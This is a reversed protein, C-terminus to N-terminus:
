EYGYDIISHIIKHGKTIEDPKGTEHEIQIDTREIMGVGKAYLEEQYNMHILSVDDEWLAIACQSFAYGDVVYPIDVDIYKANIPDQTNFANVDWSNGTRIPFILKTYRSNGEITEVLDNTKTIAYTHEYIWDTSDTKVYRIWKHSERGLNDYFVTDISKKLQYITTDVTQTFDNWIISQVNYTIYMGEGVPFYDYGMDMPPDVDKKCSYLSLLAISLIAFLLSVKNGM